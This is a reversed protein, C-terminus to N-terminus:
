SCQASTFPIDMRYDDATGYIGDPGATFLEDPICPNAPQEGENEDLLYPSGWPDRIAKNIGNVVGGTAAQIANLSTVWRTYCGSSNSINRLDTGTPCSCRSCSSGTIQRLEKGSEGQAIASAKVIEQMQAKAAAYQGKQRASNLAALVVSALTGIIAIVVLLEILTFGQSNATKTSLRFWMVSWLVM